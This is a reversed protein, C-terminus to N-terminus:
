GVTRCPRVQGYQPLSFVQSSRPFSILMFSISAIYHLKLCYLEFFADKGIVIPLGVAQPRLQLPILGKQQVQHRAGAAALGGGQQPRHLPQPLFHADTHHLRVNVAIHIGAGHGPGPYPGDLQMGAAHAVQIGSHGLLAQPLDPRLVQIENHQLIHAIENARRFKIGARHFVGHDKRDRLSM